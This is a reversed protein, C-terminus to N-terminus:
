EDEDANYLKITEDTEADRIEVTHGQAAFREAIEYADEMVEINRADLLAIETFVNYM